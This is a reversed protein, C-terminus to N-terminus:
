KRPIKTSWIGFKDKKIQAKTGDSNHEFHHTDASSHNKDVAIGDGTSHSYKYGKKQLYKEKALMMADPHRYPAGTYKKKPEEEKPKDKPPESTNRLIKWLHDTLDKHTSGKNVLTKSYTRKGKYLSSPKLSNHEWSGNPHVQIEHDPHKEHTYGESGFMSVRGEKKKWGFRKLHKEHEGVEEAPKSTTTTHQTREARPLSDIHVLKRTDAITTGLQKALREAHGYALQKEHETGARDIMQILAKLTGLNAEFINAAIRKQESELVEIAKNKLKAQISEVIVKNM